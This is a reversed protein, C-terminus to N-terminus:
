IEQLAQALTKGNERLYLLYGSASQHRCCLAAIAAILALTDNVWVSSFGTGHVFWKERNQGLRHILAGLCADGAGLTDGSGLPVPLPPRSVSEIGTPTTWLLELEKEGDTVLVVRLKPFREFLSRADGDSLGDLLHPLLHRNTKLVHCFPLIKLTSEMGWRAPRGFDFSVIKGAEAAERAMQRQPAAVADCHFWDLWELAKHWWRGLTLDRPTAVRKQEIIHHVKHTALGESQQFIDIRLLRTVGNFKRQLWHVGVGLSQCHQLVKEGAIDNGIVGTLAATVGGLAAVASLANTATGGPIDLTEPPAGDAPYICLRDLPIAGIGLVRMTPSNEPTM